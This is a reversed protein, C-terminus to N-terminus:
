MTPRCRPCVAVGTANAWWGVQHATELARQLARAQETGDIKTTEARVVLLHGCVDCTFTVPTVAYLHKM